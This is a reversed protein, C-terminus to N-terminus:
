FRLYRTTSPESMVVIWRSFPAVGLSSFMTQSKVCNTDREPTSFRGPRFSISSLPSQLGYEIMCFMAACGFWGTTMCLALGHPAWIITRRTKLIDAQRQQEYITINIYLHSNYRFSYLATYIYQVTSGLERIQIPTVVITNILLSDCLM